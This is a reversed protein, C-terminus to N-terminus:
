RKRPNSNAKEYAKSKRVQTKGKTTNIASGLTNPKQEQREVWHLLRLTVEASATGKESLWRNVAQRTTDLDRALRAQEGPASTLARVRKVLAKWYGTESTVDLLRDDGRISDIELKCNELAASQKARAMAAALAQIKAGYAQDSQLGFTRQIRISLAEIKACYLERSQLDKRM